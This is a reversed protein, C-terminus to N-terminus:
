EEEGSIPNVSDSIGTDENAKGCVKRMAEQHRDCSTECTERTNCTPCPDHEALLDDMRQYERDEEQWALFSGTGGGDEKYACDSTCPTDQLFACNVCPDISMEALAM